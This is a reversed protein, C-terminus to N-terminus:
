QEDKVELLNSVLKDSNISVSVSDEEEIGLEKYVWGFEKQLKKVKVKDLEKKVVEVVEVGGDFHVDITNPFDKPYITKTAKRITLGEIKPKDVMKTTQLGAIDVVQSVKEEMEELYQKKFREDINDLMKSILDRKDKMAKFQELVKDYEESLKTKADLVNKYITILEKNPRLEGDVEKHFKGAADLQKEIEVGLEKVQEDINTEVDKLIIDLKM